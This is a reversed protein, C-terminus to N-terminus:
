TIRWTEREKIKEIMECTKCIRGSTMEGCRECERLEITGLSESLIEHLREFGRLISYKTGPHRYEFENLFDRIEARMSFESYPCEEEFIEIGKLISYLVTEREPIDMFPHIRPILGKKRRKPLIRALREIEGRMYNLMITQAIDDLNHGTALKTAGLEKAKKNLLYKRMVGCYTCPTFEGERVIEDLTKGFEESFSFVHHEVGLEDCLKGAYRRLPERYGEIGEDVTIAFIKLDRRERFTEHLFKLLASSDKGGSLAVAIADGREVMRNKRMRRKAKREVDRIFHEECLWLGSYRQFVVAEKKCKSCKM